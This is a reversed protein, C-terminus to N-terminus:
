VDLSSWSIAGPALILFGLEFSFTTGSQIISPSMTIFFIFFVYRAIWSFFHNLWVFSNFSSQFLILRFFAYCSFFYNWFNFFVFFFFYIVSQFNFSSIFTGFSNYPLWNCFKNWWSPICKIFFGFYNQFLMVFFEKIICYSILLM